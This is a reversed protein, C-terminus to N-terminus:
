MTPELGALAIYHCKTEVLVVVLYMKFQTQTQTQTPSKGYMCLGSSSAPYGAVSSVPEQSSPTLTLHEPLAQTSKHSLWEGARLAM